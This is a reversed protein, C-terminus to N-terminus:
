LTGQMIRQLVFYLLLAVVNNLIHLTIGSLLGGSKKRLYGALLGFILYIPSMLLNLHILAFLLSQIINAANFNLYRQCSDLVVGRFLVEEYVPALLGVLLLSVGKGYTGILPEIDEMATLFINPIATINGAKAYIFSVLKFVFLAGVGVLVSKGISWSSSLLIKPNVRYMSILGFLAMGLMFILMSMATDSQALEVDYDSSSFIYYIGEPEPICSVFSAILYGASIIWFARLGWLSQYPKERSVLRWHHGVFYIPLIWLYPVLVLVAIVLLFALLGVADRLKWPQSPHLFFLKLRYLAIPDASYGLDRFMNYSSLCSDGGEYKLDYRLLRRLAKEKDWSDSVYSVLYERARKYEGAGELTSALSSSNIYDPDIEDILKYVDLADSYAELRMLMDAKRILQWVNKTTDPISLLVEVASDRRNVEALIGAYELTYQYDENYSIAKRIYTYAKKYEDDEYYYQDAMAKYLLARSESDWEKPNESIAKEAKSFLEKLEDGWEYGTQFLLVKPHIPFKRILIAYCSDFEAQNPNQEEYEDYQAYQIFSCKEIFVDADDPNNKLYDDYVKICDRYINDSSHKLKKLFIEHDLKKQGYLSGLPLLLIFVPLLLLRYIKQTAIM